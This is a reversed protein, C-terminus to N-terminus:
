DDRGLADWVAKKELLTKELKIYQERIKALELFEKELEPNPQLIALRAQIDNLTQTISVGAIELDADDGTISVIGEIKTQQSMDFNWDTWEHNQIMHEPIQLTYPSSDDEDLATHDILNIYKIEENDM